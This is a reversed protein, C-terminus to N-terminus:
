DCRISHGNGWNRLQANSLSIKQTYGGDRKYCMGNIPSDDKYSIEFFLSGDTYYAKLIGQRTGNEYPVSQSLKGNHMYYYNATGNIEGDVYPVEAELEGRPFYRRSIGDTKGDKYPTEEFLQGGVYYTKVIGNLQGAEFPYEGSLDGNKYHCSLTSSYYKIADTGKGLDDIFRSLFSSDTKFRSDSNIEKITSPCKDQSYANPM